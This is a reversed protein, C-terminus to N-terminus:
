DNSKVIEMSWISQINRRFTMLHMTPNNKGIPWAVPPNDGFQAQQSSHRLWIGDGADSDAKEGWM